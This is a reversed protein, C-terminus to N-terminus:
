LFVGAKSDRKLVIASRWTQFKILFYSCCPHKRTFIPFSRLVGIKLFIQSRSSKFNLSLTEQDHFIIMKLKNHFVYKMHMKGLSPVLM